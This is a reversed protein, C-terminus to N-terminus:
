SVEELTLNTKGQLLERRKRCSIERAEITKNRHIAVSDNSYSKIRQDSMVNFFDDRNDISKTATGSYIIIRAIDCNVQHAIFLIREKEPASILRTHSAASRTELYTRFSMFLFYTASEGIRMFQTAGLASSM